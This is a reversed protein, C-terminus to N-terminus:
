MITSSSGSATSRSWISQARSGRMASTPVAVSPSAASRRISPNFGSRTSSSIAMGKSSPIPTARATPRMPMRGATMKTVANSPNATSANS